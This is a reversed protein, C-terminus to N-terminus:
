EKKSYHEAILELEEFWKEGYKRILPEKLFKYVEVKLEKGLACADSCIEWEDYNVAEFNRYKKIRIPYLHCSIPKKYDIIGTEYAKEIGCKTIGKEDFIVYACEKGNVLPTLYEGDQDEVFEGQKEISEIGEVRLFPKIKPYINKLISLEDENLPAGADGQVCCIGKCKSLNCIFQETLVEESVLTNGIEFM